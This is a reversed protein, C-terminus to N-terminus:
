IDVIDHSTVTLSKRNTKKQYGSINWLDDTFIQIQQIEKKNEWQDIFWVM